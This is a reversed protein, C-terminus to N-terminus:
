PKQSTSIVTILSDQSSPCIEWLLPKSALTITPASAVPALKWAPADTDPQKQEQPLSNRPQAKRRKLLASPQAASVPVFNILAHLSAKPDKLAQLPSITSLNSSGPEVETEHKSPSALRQDLAALVKESRKLFSQLREITGRAESVEKVLGERLSKLTSEDSGGGGVDMAEHKNELEVLPTAARIPVDSLSHLPHHHSDLVEPDLQASHMLSSENNVRMALSAVM